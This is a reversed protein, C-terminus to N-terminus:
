RKFATITYGYEEDAVNKEFDFYASEPYGYQSNYKIETYFPKKNLSTKIFEFIDDISKVGFNTLSVTAGKSGIASTIQGNVVVVKYPSSQYCNGCSINETLEYNVILSTKWKNYNATYDEFPTKTNEKSCANLTLVTVVIVLLKM